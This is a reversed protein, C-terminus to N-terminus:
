KLKEAAISGWVIIQTEASVSIWKEKLTEASVCRWVVDQTEASVIKRYRRIVENHQVVPHTGM